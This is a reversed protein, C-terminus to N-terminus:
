FSMLKDESCVVMGCSSFMTIIAQLNNEFFLVLAKNDINGFELLLVRPPPGKLLYYDFFDTDKTIIIRDEKSAVNRIAHDALLHGNPYYTTHISQCGKSSLFKALKPPLQTDVIFKHMVM